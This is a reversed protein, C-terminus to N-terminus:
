PPRHSVADVIQEGKNIIRGSRVVGDGRRPPTIPAGENLLDPYRLVDAEGDPGAAGAEVRALLELLGEGSIGSVLSLEPPPDASAVKHQGVLFGIGFSAVCGLVAGTVAAHLHSRSVSLRRGDRERALDSM